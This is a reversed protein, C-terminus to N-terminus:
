SICGLATSESNYVVLLILTRLGGGRRLPATKRPDYGRIDPLGQPNEGVLLSSLRSAYRRRHMAFARISPCVIEQLLLYRCCREDLGLKTKFGSYKCWECVARFPPSGFGLYKGWRNFLRGCGIIHWCGSVRRPVPPTLNRGYFLESM